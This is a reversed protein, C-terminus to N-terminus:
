QKYNKETTNLFIQSEASSNGFSNIQQEQQIILSFVKNMNPLPEM